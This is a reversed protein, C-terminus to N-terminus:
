EEVATREVRDDGTEKNMYNRMEALDREEMEAIVEKMGVNTKKGSSLYNLVSVMNRTNSENVLFGKNNM